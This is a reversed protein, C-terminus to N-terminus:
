VSGFQEGAKQVFVNARKRDKMDTEAKKRRKKKEIEDNAQLPVILQFLQRSGFMVNDHYYEIILALCTMSITYGSYFVDTRIIKYRLNVLVTDYLINASWQQM